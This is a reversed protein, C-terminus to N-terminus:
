VSLVSRLHAMLEQHVIRPAKISGDRDMCDIRIWEFRKALERFIDLSDQLHDTSAEHLDAAKDTYSRADKKAILTKANLPPMDLFFVIDPKPVGLIAFELNAIWAQTEGRKEVDVRASQHALNSGVYRDCVVIHGSAVSASIRDRCQFRDLAYLMASFKPHVQDLAGYEGNLYHGVEKGFDTTTYQPFQLFDVQRGMRTLEDVLWKSQTGKGSGDIGEIAIIM